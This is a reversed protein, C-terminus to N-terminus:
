KMFRNYVNTREKIAPFVIDSMYEIRKLLEDTDMPDINESPDALLPYESTM